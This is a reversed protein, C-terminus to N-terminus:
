QLNMGPYEFIVWGRISRVLFFAGQSHDGLHLCANSIRLFINQMSGARFIGSGDAGNEMVV